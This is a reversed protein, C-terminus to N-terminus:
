FDCIYAAIIFVEKKEFGFRICAVLGAKLNLSTVRLAYIHLGVFCVCVCESM